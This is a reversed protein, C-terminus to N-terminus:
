PGNRRKIAVTLRGNGALHSMLAPLGVRELHRSLGELSRSELIRRPAVGPEGRYVRGAEGKVLLVVMAGARCRWRLICLCGPVDKSTFRGPNGPFELEQTDTDTLYAEYDM